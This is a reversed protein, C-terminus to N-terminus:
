FSLHEPTFYIIHDRLITVGFRCEFTTPELRVVVWAFLLHMFLYTLVIALSTGPQFRFRIIFILAWCLAQLLAM